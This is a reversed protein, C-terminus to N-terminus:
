DWRRYKPINEISNFDLESLEQRYRDSWTHERYKRSPADANQTKFEHVQDM